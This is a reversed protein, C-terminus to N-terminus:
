DDVSRAIAANSWFMVEELKTISLAKERGEPLLENLTHALRACNYRASTHEGRKEATTAAHSAFRHEIDEPSM